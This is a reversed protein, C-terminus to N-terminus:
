NAHKKKEKEKKAAERTLKKNLDHILKKAKPVFHKDITKKLIVTHNVRNVIVESEQYVHAGKEDFGVYFVKFCKKCMTKQLANAFSRSVTVFADCFPCHLFEM